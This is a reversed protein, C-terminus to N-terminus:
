VAIAYKGLALRLAAVNYNSQASLAMVARSSFTTLGQRRNQEQWLALAGVSYGPHTPDKINKAKDSVSLNKCPRSPTAPVEKPLPPLRKSTGEKRDQLAVATGCM